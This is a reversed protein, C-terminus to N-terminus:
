PDYGILSAYRGTYSVVKAMKGLVCLDAGSDSIAYFKHKLEPLNTYEFHARVVIDTDPNGEPPDVSVRTMMASTVQIYDDDTDYGDDVINCDAVSSVLNLMIEKANEKIVM